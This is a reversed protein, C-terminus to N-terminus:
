HRAKTELRLALKELLDLVGSQPKGQVPLPRSSASAHPIRGAPTGGEVGLRTKLSELRELLAPRDEPGGAALLEEYIDIAGYLDGQEALVEAMSRTRLSYKIKGAPESDGGAPVARSEEAAEPRPPAPPASFDTENFVFPPPARDAQPPSDQAQPAPSADRRPADRLQKLGAALLDSLTVGADRFLVGLVGLFVSLDQGQGTKASVDSWADWFGPYEQFLGALRAVESGCAASDGSKHLMDILLLRAEIFEPHLALGNRLAAVAEEVRGLEALLRAFPLFIKSGPELALVERYWDAKESKAAVGGSSDQAKVLAGHRDNLPVM